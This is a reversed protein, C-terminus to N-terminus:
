WRFTSNQNYFTGEQMDREGQATEVIVKAGESTPKAGQEVKNYSSLNSVTFGPCVLFFKFGLHEYETRQVLTIMNLASKSARYAPALQKYLPNTKDAKNGLSGAGSSVNVVRPQKSKELLTRFKETVNYPGIVNTDYLSRFQEDILADPVTAIAANNVLM